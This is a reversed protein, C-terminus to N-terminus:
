NSKTKPAPIFLKTGVHLKAPNVNPNADTIQKTTVKVGQAHYAQAILSITDDKKIVYYYGNQDANVTPTASTADSVPPKTSTHSAPKLVATGLNQMEKLILEKDAERKKDLERVAEALQKVEEASAYNGTPKSTQQRLDEIEKRLSQLQKDRDAQAALLDEVHGKLSNYNEEAEQRSAIASATSPASSPADQGRLLPAASLLCLVSFRCFRKM